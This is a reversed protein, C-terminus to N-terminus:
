KLINLIHQRRPSAVQCTKYKRFNKLAFFNISYNILLPLLECIDDDSNTILKHSTM